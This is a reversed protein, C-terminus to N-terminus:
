EGENLPEGTEEKSTEEIGEGDVDEGFVEIYGKGKMAEVDSVRVKLEEGIKFCNKDYKLNVLAKASAMKAKAM